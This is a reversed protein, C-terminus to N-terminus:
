KRNKKLECIKKRDRIGGTELEFNTNLPTKFKNKEPIKFSCYKQDGRQEKSGDTKRHIENVFM